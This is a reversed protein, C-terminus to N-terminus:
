PPGDDVKPSHPGDSTWDDADLVKLWLEIPITIPDANWDISSFDFRKRAWKYWIDDENLGLKNRLKTVDKDTNVSHATVPEQKPDIRFKDQLKEKQPKENDDKMGALLDEWRGPLSLELKEPTGQATNAKDLLKKMWNESKDSDVLENLAKFIGMKDKFAKHLKEKFESPTIFIDGYVNVLSNQYIGRTELYADWDCELQNALGMMDDDNEFLQRLAVYYIYPRIAPTPHIGDSTTFNREDRSQLYTTFDTAMLPGAVFIGFIDAFIELEWHRFLTYDINQELKEYRSLTSILRGSVEGKYQYLGNWYVYHGVEHAIKLLDRKMSIASYPVAVLAGRFYPISRVSARNAFYTLGYSDHEFDFVSHAMSLAHNVLHDSIDRTKTWEDFALKEVINRFFRQIKIIFQEYLSKDEADPVTAPEYVMGRQQLVYLWIGYDRIVRDLISQLIHVITLGRVPDVELKYNKIRNEGDKHEPKGESDEKLTIWGFFKLHGSTFQKMDNLINQVDPNTGPSDEIDVILREIGNLFNNIREYLKEAIPMQDYEYENKDKNETM